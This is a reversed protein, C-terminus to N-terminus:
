TKANYVPSVKAATKIGVLDTTDTLQSPPILATLM